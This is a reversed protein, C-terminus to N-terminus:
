ESEAFRITCDTIQAYARPTVIVGKRRVVWRLGPTDSARTVLISGIVLGNEKLDGYLGALTEHETEVNDFTGNERWCQFVGM